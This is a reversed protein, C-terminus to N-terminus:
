VARFSHEVRSRLAFCIARQQSLDGIEESSSYRRHFRLLRQFDNGKHFGRVQALRAPSVWDLEAFNHFLRPGGCIIRAGATKLEIERQLERWDINTICVASFLGEQWETVM